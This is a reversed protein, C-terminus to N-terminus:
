STYSWGYDVLRASPQLNKLTESFMANLSKPTLTKPLNRIGKYLPAIPPLHSASGHNPPISSGPEPRGQPQPLCTVPSNKLSAKFCGTRPNQGTM